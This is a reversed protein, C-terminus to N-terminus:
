GLNEALLTHVRSGSLWAEFKIEVVLFSHSKTSTVSVSQAKAREKILILVM